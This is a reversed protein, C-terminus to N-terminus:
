TRRHFRVKGEPLHRMEYREDHARHHHHPCLLRGAEVSTGGGDAWAREHHAETWAPPRDCGLATCGGDRIRMAIRQPGTHLRVKRGLDLPESRSGLVAPVLGANCALRRVEGPSIRGGTDLIGSGIGQRLKDLDMTAVVTAATGGAQPLKDVPLHEVLDAFALGLLRAYPIRKGDADLWADPNTRRPAAFAQVAKGLMQAQLTPLKFWGSHTGDGNDRMAFRCRERARREERELAEAERQDAEDPSLVEFLRRALVQLQKADHESALEIPHAQARIRDADTVEEAPLDEVARLVVWVQDVTLRGAAFAARTTEFVPDDLLKAGRLEGNTRARTERTRSSLWSATSTHGEKSGPENRDAAALVRWELECLRARVSALEVLTEAQEAPTMAWAPAAALRDLAACAAGAFRHVADTRDTVPTPQPKM